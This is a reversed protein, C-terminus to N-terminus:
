NNNDGLDDLTFGQARLQRGFSPVVEEYDSVSTDSFLNEDRANLLPTYSPMGQTFPPNNVMDAMTREPEVSNERVVEVAPGGIPYLNELLAPLYTGQLDRAFNKAQCIKM